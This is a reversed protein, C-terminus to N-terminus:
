SSISSPGCRFPAPSLLTRAAQGRRKRVAGRKAAALKMLGGWDPANGLKRSLPQEVSSNSAPDAEVDLFWTEPTLGAERLKEPPLQSPPPNGRGLIRARELPTLYAPGDADKAAPAAVLPAAGLKM